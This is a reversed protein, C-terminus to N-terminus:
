DVHFVKSRTLKNKLTICLFVSTPSDIYFGILFIPAAALGNRYLNITILFYKRVERELIRRADLKVTAFMAHTKKLFM